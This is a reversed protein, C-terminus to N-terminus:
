HFKVDRISADFSERYRDFDEAKTTATVIYIWSESTFYYQVVKLPTGKTTYAFSRFKGVSGPVQINGTGLSQFDELSSKTQKAELETFMKELSFDDSKGLCRFFVNAGFPSGFLAIVGPQQKDILALDKPPMYSFGYTAHRFRGDAEQQIANTPTTGIEILSDIVGALRDLETKDAAQIQFSYTNGNFIELMRIVVPANNADRGSIEYEVRDPIPRKIKFTPTQVDLFNQKALRALLGQYNGKILDARKEDADAKQLQVVLTVSASTGSKACGLRYAQVGNVVREGGTNWAFGHGPSEISFVGPISLTQPKTAERKADRAQQLSRVYAQDATSLLNLGVDVVKGDSKRLSAKGSKLGVIKAEISHKGDATKWTRAEQANIANAIYFLSVLCCCFLNHKSKMADAKKLKV